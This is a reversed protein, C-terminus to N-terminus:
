NSYQWFTDAPYLTSQDSIRERVENQDPFRYDPPSWYPSDSERPLGSSHTLLSEITIPASDENPQTIEFWPLFKHVPDALRLVDADRLQMVAISTFLKSISCISYLTDATTPIKEEPNSYGYGGTWILEQDVVLGASLGPLQAYCQESELWADILRLTSQVRPHGIKDNM